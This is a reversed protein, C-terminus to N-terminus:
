ARRMESLASTVMSVSSESYGSRRCTAVRCWSALMQERRSPTTHALDMKQREATAIQRQDRVEIM